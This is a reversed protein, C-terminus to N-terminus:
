VGRPPRWFLCDYFSHQSSTNLMELERNHTTVATDAPPRTYRRWWNGGSVRQTHACPPLTIMPPCELLFNDYKLDNRNNKKTLLKIYDLIIFEQSPIIHYPFATFHTHMTHHMCCAHLGTHRHDIDHATHSVFGQIQHSRIVGEQLQWASDRSGAGRWVPISIHLLYDGDCWTVGQVSSLQM